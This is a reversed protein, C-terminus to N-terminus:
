DKLEKFIEKLQIKVKDDSKTKDEDYFFSFGLGAGDKACGEPQPGWLIAGSIGLKEFEKLRSNMIKMASEKSRVTEPNYPSPYKSYDYEGKNGERVRIGIEGLFFPKNLEKAQQIYDKHLKSVAGSGSSTSKESLHKLPNIPLDKDFTYDHVTAVDINPLGYLEKYERGEMGNRDYGGLTGLSIMHRPLDQNPNLNEYDDYVNRITTSVDDAFNRLTEHKAEPENMLEIMLIEDRNVFSRVTNKVHELYNDVHVKKGDVNVDFSKKYDGDYWSETKRFKDGHEWHDCLVPIFKLNLNLEKSTDFIKQFDKTSNSSYAWFRITNAGSDAVLKLTKKLEEPNDRAVNALDYINIGSIKFEKGKDMIKGNQVYALKDNPTKASSNFSWNYFTGENKKVVASVQMDLFDNKGQVFSQVNKPTIKYLQYTKDKLVIATDFALNKAVSEADTFKRFSNGASAKGKLEFDSVKETIGKLPKDNQNNFLNLPDIKKSSKTTLNVKDLQVINNTNDKELTSDKKTIIQKKSTLEKIENIKNQGSVNLGSM